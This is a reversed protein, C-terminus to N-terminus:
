LEEERGNLYVSFDCEFLTGSPDFKANQCIGNQSGVRNATVNPPSCFSRLRMSPIDTRM